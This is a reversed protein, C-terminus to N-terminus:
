RSGLSPSALSATCAPVEDKANTLLHHNVDKQHLKSFLELASSLELFLALEDCKSLVPDALLMRLYSTLGERRDEAKTAEDKTSPMLSKGPLDPLGRFNSKLQSHLQDFQRFRRRVSYSNYGDASSSVKVVYTAYANDMEVRLIEASLSPSAEAAALAALTTYPMQSDQQM